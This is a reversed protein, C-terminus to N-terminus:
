APRTAARVALWSAVGLAVGVWVTASRDDIQEVLLGALVASAAFSSEVLLMDLGSLRGLTADPAQQQLSASSMMWNAGTGCGWVFTVALLITGPLPLILLAIAAFSVWASAQWVALSGGLRAAILPGVGTGVGRAAQLAGLTTATAGAFPVDRAILNLLVVGAGGALALPTKSCVARLLAPDAWAMRAAESLDARAAQVARSLTVDGTGRTPMAPLTAILAAGLLFTGADLALAFPVGVTALLGGLGMGVAYMASWTAGGLAHAALADEQPVLRRIAGARAPWDLGGITSRCWVLVQLAPVDGAIAREVMLATLLTQAIHMGILLNRRDFRDALVGAIPRMLAMPLEHAALTLGVALAGNGGGQQVALVSIAVVSCWDGVLSVAEAFWLRAFGPNERLVRLWDSV